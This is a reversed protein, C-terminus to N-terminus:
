EGKAVFENLRKVLDEVAIGHVAAAQELTEASSVPCGLCHMGFEYFAPAIDPEAQLVEFITMDKTIM